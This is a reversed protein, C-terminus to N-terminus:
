YVYGYYRGNISNSSYLYNKTLGFFDMSFSFFFDDIKFIESM